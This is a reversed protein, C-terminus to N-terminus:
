ARAPRWRRTVRFTREDEPQVTFTLFQWGDADLYELLLTATLPAQYRYTMRRRQVPPRTSSM